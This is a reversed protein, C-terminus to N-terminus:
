TGAPVASDRAFASSIGASSSRRTTAATASINSRNAFLASMIRSDDSAGGLPDSWFLDVPLGFFGADAIPDQTQVAAGPAFDHMTGVFKGLPQTLSAEPRSRGIDDSIVKPEDSSLRSSVM